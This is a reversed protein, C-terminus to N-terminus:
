PTLKLREAQVELSRGQNGMSELWVAAWQQEYESTEETDVSVRYWDVADRLRGEVQAMLGVYFAVEARRQSTVALALMTEETELGMLYGAMTRYDDGRAGGRLYAALARRHADDPQGDLVWAAARMLWVTSANPGSEPHEVLTWLLERQVARGSGFIELSLANLRDSPLRPRVWALAAAEGKTERLWGYAWLPQRYSGLARTPALDAQLAFALDLRGGGSIGAPLNELTYTPIGAALLAAFARRADDVPREAFASLFAKTVERRWEAHTPEHGKAQLLAPVEDFRDQRWLIEALVSRGYASGPYRDVLREGYDRAEDHEGQAELVLAATGLAGAQYSQAVPRIWRWAEDHRGAKMEIRAMATHASIRPFGEGGENRDLWDQVVSRAEALEGRDRRYAAYTERSAWDGPDEDMVQHALGRLTEDDIAPKWGVLRNVGDVRDDHDLAPNRVMAILSDPDEEYSTMWEALGMEHPAQRLISRYYRDARALDHTDFRAISALDFRNAIRADLVRSYAKGAANKRADAFPLSNTAEEYSRTRATAGLLVMRRADALLVEVNRRGNAADALHRYWDHLEKAVGPPAGDLSEVLAQAAAPSALGDLLHRALQWMGSYFHGTFYARYTGGDLFPGPFGHDLLVLDREFETALAADSVGLGGRLLPGVSALRRPDMRAIRADAMRRFVDDPLATSWLDYLAVFPVLSTLAADNQFRNMALAPKLQALGFGHPGIGHAETWDFLGDPDHDRSSLRLAFLYRALPPAKAAEATAQLAADDELVYTRIPDHSPLERALARAHASYWMQRSLLAEERALDGGLAEALAVTALARAPLPDGVDLRDYSQVVLYTLGRAAMAVMEPSRRGDRWREDLRGMGEAVSGAEFADLRAEVYSRDRRALGGSESTAWGGDESELVARAWGRLLGIADGFDALVPLDGVARERYTVRWAGDLLDARLVGAPSGTVLREVDAVALLFRRDPLPEYGVRVQDLMEEASGGLATRPSPQVVEITPASVAVPAEEELHRLYDDVLHLDGVRDRCGATGISALALLTGVRVLCASRADGAALRRPSSGAM